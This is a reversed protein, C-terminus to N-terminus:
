FHIFKLRSLVVNFDAERAYRKIEKAQASIIYNRHSSAEVSLFNDIDQHCFDFHYNHLFKIKM